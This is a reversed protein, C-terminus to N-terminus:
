FSTSNPVGNPFMKPVQHSDMPFKFPVHQSCLFKKKLGKGGWGLVKFSFFWPVKLAHQAKGNAQHFKQKLFHDDGNKAQISVGM